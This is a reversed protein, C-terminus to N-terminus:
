HLSMTSLIMIYFNAVVEIRDGFDHQWFTVEMGLVNQLFSAESALIMRGSARKARWFREALTESREGFFREARVHTRPADTLEVM